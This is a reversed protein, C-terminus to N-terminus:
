KINLKNIMEFAINILANVGYILSSTNLKFYPNHIKNTYGDKTKGSSLLIM